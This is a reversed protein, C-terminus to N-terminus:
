MTFISQPCCSPRQSILFLKLFCFNICFRAFDCNNVLPNSSVFLKLKTISQDWFMHWYQHFFGVKEPEPALGLSRKKLNLATKYASASKVKLKAKKIEELGDTKVKELNKEAEKEKRLVKKKVDKLNKSASKVLNTAKEEEEEFESNQKVDM